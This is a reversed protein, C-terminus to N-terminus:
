AFLVVERGQNARRKLLSHYIVSIQYISKVVFIKQGDDVKSGNLTKKLCFFFLKEVYNETFSQVLQDRLDNAQM